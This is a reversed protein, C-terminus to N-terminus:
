LYRLDYIVINKMWSQSKHWEENKLDCRPLIWSLRLIASILAHFGHSISFGSFSLAAVNIISCGGEM